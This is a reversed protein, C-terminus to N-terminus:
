SDKFQHISGLLEGSVCSFLRTFVIFCGRANAQKFSSIQRRFGGLGM